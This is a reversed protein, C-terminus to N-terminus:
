PKEGILAFLHKRATEASLKHWGQLDRVKRWVWTGPQGYGQHERLGDLSIYAERSRRQHVLAEHRRHENM